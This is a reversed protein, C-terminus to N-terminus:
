SAALPRPTLADVLWRTPAPFWRSLAFWRPWVLRARGALAARVVADALDDASAIPQMRVAWSSRYADLAADAMDTGIIGPYVTTVTVGSGALEGRLAESAAALGGKAANYWTMGPTPALAAMSAINVVRGQGRTEMGPLVRRILRLPTMLDLTLSAEARAVDISATPGVVQSGANNILLDVPGAVDVADALARDAAELDSLDAVVVHPFVGLPRLEEALQRLRGESRAVLTIHAGALRPERALRRALAAGIGASAGTLFVHM